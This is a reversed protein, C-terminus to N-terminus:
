KEWTGDEEGDESGYEEIVEALDEITQSDMMDAISLDAGFTNKLDSRIKIAMMSDGGVEFFDDEISIADTHLYKKWIELIKAQTETEPRRIEREEERCSALLAKLDVKNNLSMPFRKLVTITKPVMYAPLKERCIAAVADRVDEGSELFLVVAKSAGFEAVTAVADEVRGDTRAVNEIEGLEIRFGNVKVQKDRRGCFMIVKRDTDYYGYDGTHYVRGFRKTERFAQETLEPAHFYGKAVGMGGIVLEGLCNRPRIEENEDMVYISQNDEATGYPITGNFQEGRTIHYQMAFISTETAGGFSWLETHPFTEFIRDPLSVPIWDGSLLVSKMSPVATVEEADSLALEMIMPVSNWFTVPYERLWKWIEKSERRDEVILLEASKGFTGFIDFVSLDFSYESLGLVVDNKSFGTRRYVDQMTVIVQGHAIEVGKPAGTSGSTYIIYASTDLPVEVNRLETQLRDPDIAEFLDTWRLVRGSESHKMIYDARAQPFSDPVPIYTGGALVVAAILAVTEKSRDTRIIVRDGIAVSKLAETELLQAIVNKLQRYNWAGKADVVATRDPEASLGTRLLEALSVYTEDRETRNMEMLVEYGPVDEDTTLTEETLFRDITKAFYDFFDQIREEDFVKKMYDLQIRFGKKETLAQCDLLVQSTQSIGYLAEMEDFKVTLDDDYMMSTFVVPILGSIPVGQARSLERIVETGEFSKHDFGLFMNHSTEHLYTQIDTEERFSFSQLFNVTFDGVMERYQEEEPRGFATVNVTFDRTGSWRRLSWAYLALLVASVTVSYKGAVRKLRRYDGFGWFRTKRGFTNKPDQDPIAKYPLDPALPMADVRDMWYARDREYKATQEAGELGKIYNQFHYDDLQLDPDDYLALLQRIFIFVSMGDMLMMDSDIVMTQEGTDTRKLFFLDFLPWKSIDREIGQYHTRTQELVRRYSEETEIPYERIEMRPVEDLERMEDNVFVTRLISQHKFLENLAQELRKVDLNVRFEYYFHTPNKGGKYENNRGLLYAQQMKTMKM